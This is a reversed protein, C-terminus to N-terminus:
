AHRTREAIGRTMARHTLHTGAAAGIIPAFLNAIPVLMAGAVVGGLFLRQVRPVPNARWAEGSHRLWTMDTLERGLLWANVALFLLAPGIGTVMLLLAFPLAIANLAITRGMGRLSNAIDRRLPLAGPSAQPYHRAEVAAVIEDAFLQLVALAVIRFLLWFAALWVFVALFTALTERYGAPLFGIRAAELANDLAWWLAAGFGAFIVLTVLASKLLVRWVARDSLQGIARAISTVVVSM